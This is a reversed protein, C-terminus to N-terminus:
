RSAALCEGAQVAAAFAAGLRRVGEGIQEVPVPGFSLRAQNLSAHAPSGAYCFQGPVYLVGAHLSAKMLASDPGTEVEPPFTM